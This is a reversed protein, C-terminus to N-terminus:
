SAFPMIIIAHCVCYCHIYLVALVVFNLFISRVCMISVWVCVCMGEHINNHLCITTCAHHGQLREKMPMMMVDSCVLKYVGFM